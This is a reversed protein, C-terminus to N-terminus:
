DKPLLVEVQVIPSSNGTDDRVVLDAPQSDPRERWGRQMADALTLPVPLLAEVSEERWNRAVLARGDLLIQNAATPKGGTGLFGCGVIKIKDDVGLQIRLPSVSTITPAVGTELAKKVLYGTTSVGALALLTSPITPLGKSPDITTVTAFQVFFYLLAVVNFAFYQLDVLDAQGTDNSVIEALGAALGRSESASKTLQGSATKGTTLAKAAVAVAVPLGLLAFYEPQFPSHVFADFAGSPPSPTAAGHWLTRNLVLMYLLVLLLAYTWMVAQLKSTSARGDAGIVLSKLGAQRARVAAATRNAAASVAEAAAQSAVGAAPQRATPDVAAYGTAVDTAAMEIAATAAPATAAAVAAAPETRSIDDLAAAVRRQDAAKKGADALAADASADFQGRVLLHLVVTISCVLWAALAVSWRPTLALGKGASLLYVVAVAPWGVLALGLLRIVAKRNVALGLVREPTGQEM